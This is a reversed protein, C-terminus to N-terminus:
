VVSKRDQCALALELGGGMAVGHLAAVVPKPSTEVVRIVTHLSPEATMKPTGFEKIDAGGSFGKGAGVLVIAQVAPDAAARDLGAALDRRLAHGLGNVPPNDLTIVVVAGRAQYEAGGM